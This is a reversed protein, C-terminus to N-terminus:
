SYLTSGPQPCSGENGPASHIENKDDIVFDFRGSGRYKRYVSGAQIALQLPVVVSGYGAVATANNYAALDTAGDFNTTTLASHRSL